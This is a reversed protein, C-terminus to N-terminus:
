KTLKVVKKGNMLIDNRGSLEVNRVGLYNFARLLIQQNKVLTEQDIGKSSSNPLYSIFSFIATNYDQYVAGGGTQRRVIKLKSDGNLVEERIEAYPNQHKGIVVCPENEYLFLLHLPTQPADPSEGLAVLSKVFFDEIALNFYPENFPSILISLPLPRTPKGAESLESMDSPKFKARISRKLTEYYKNPNSQQLVAEYETDTYSMKVVSPFKVPTPTPTPTPPEEKSNPDL